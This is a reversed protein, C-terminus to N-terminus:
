PKPKGGKAPKTTHTRPKTKTLADGIGEHLYHTIMASRSIRRHDAERDLIQILEEPLNISICRSPANQLPRGAGPRPGGWNPSSRFLPAMGVEHSLTESPKKKFLEYNILNFPSFPPINKFLQYSILFCPDNKGRQPASSLSRATKM